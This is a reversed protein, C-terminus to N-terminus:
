SIPDNQNIFQIRLVSDINGICSFIIYKVFFCLFSRVIEKTAGEEDFSRFGELLCSLLVYVITTLLCTYREATSTHQVARVVSFWLVGDLRMSRSCVPMVWLCMNDDVLYNTVCCLTSTCSLVFTACSGPPSFDERKLCAKGLTECIGDRRRVQLPGPASLPLIESGKDQRSHGRQQWVSTAQGVAWGGQCFFFFFVCACACVRKSPKYCPQCM